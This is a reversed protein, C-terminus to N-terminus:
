TLFINHYAAMIVIIAITLGILGGLAYSAILKIKEENM